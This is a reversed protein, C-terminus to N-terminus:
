IFVKAQLKKIEGKSKEPNTKDKSLRAIEANLASLTLANIAISLIIGIAWFLAGKKGLAKPDGKLFKM